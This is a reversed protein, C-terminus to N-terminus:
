GAGYSLIVALVEPDMAKRSAEAKDVDQELKTGVATLFKVLKKHMPSKKKFKKRRKKTMCMGVCMYSIFERENVVGDGDQDMQAIVQEVEAESVPGFSGPLEELM